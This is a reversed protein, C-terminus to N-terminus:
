KTAHQPCLQDVEVGLKNMLEAHEEWDSDIANLVAAGSVVAVALFKQDSRDFDNEPLEKFERLDDDSPTVAVRRVRDPIYQSDFLHKFFMDGVGPQGAWSLHRAYEDIILGIEDVAITEHRVLQELRNVCTLQCLKDASTKSGGNAVIAVNTDVVFANM